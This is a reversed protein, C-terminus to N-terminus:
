MTVKRSNKAMNTNASALSKVAMQSWIQSSAPSPRAASRAAFAVARLMVRVSESSFPKM